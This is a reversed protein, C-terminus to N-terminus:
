AAMQFRHGSNENPRKAQLFRALSEYLIERASRSPIGALEAAEMLVQEEKGLLAGDVAAVHTLYRYAVFRQEGANEKLWAASKQLLATAKEASDMADIEVEPDSTVPLLMEVLIDKEEESFQDDAYGVLVGASLLFDRINLEMPDSPTIEMLKTMASVETDVAELSERSAAAGGAEGFLQLAKVRIPTVPHSFGCISDRKELSKLEELQCLFASVDFNLFEPGLGSAAKFFASVIPTMKGGVAAFGCRDASLECLRNWIDMRRRLLNPMRSEGKENQGVVQAVLRARYHQFHIHGIEHGLVFRLEEDNMREVLSNTLSIIHPNHDLSYMACANIKQDAEVFLDIPQDYQLPSRVENLLNFIRPAISPSLKLQSGLVYDRVSRLGGEREFHALLPELGFRRMMGELKEQEPAFRMLDLTPNM